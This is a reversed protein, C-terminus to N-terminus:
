YSNRKARSNERLPSLTNWAHVPARDLSLSARTRERCKETTTDRSAAAIENLVAKTPDDDSPDCSGFSILLSSGGVCRSLRRGGLSCVFRIPFGSFIILLALQRCQNMPRPASAPYLVTIASASVPRDAVSVSHCTRLAVYNGRLTLGSGAYVVDFYQIGPLDM